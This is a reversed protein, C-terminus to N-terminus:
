SSSEQTNEPLESCSTGKTNPCCHIVLDTDHKIGSRESGNPQVAMYGYIATFNTPDLVWDDGEEKVDFWLSVPNPCSSTVNHDPYVTGSDDVSLCAPPNMAGDCGQVSASAGLGLGLGLLLSSIYPHKRIM